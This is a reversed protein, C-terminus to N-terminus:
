GAGTSVEIVLDVVHDLPLTSDIVHAGFGRYM